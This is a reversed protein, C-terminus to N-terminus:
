PREKIEIKKALHVVGCNYLVEIARRRSTYIEKRKVRVMRFDKEEEQKRKQPLGSMECTQLRAKKESGGRGRKRRKKRTEGIKKGILVAPKKKCTKGSKHSVGSGTPCFSKM